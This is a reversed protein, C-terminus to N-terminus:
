HLINKGSDTINDYVEKIPNNIDTSTASPTTESGIDSFIGRKNLNEFITIGM